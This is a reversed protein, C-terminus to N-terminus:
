ELPDWDMSCLPRSLHLAQTMLDSLACCLKSDQCVTSTSMRAKRRTQWRARSVTPGQDFYVRM